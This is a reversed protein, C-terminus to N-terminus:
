LGLEQAVLERHFNADGFDVEGMKARTTYLGLDHDEIFGMGAFIEHARLVLRRTAESVWTKTVAVDISHPLGHSIKSATQWTLFRAGDLDTAMDAIYGQVIEFAGIPRDFQIREKTYDVTMEFVKQAMGLMEACRAIAGEQLIKKVLPWGEDLAGLMKGNPIRVRDFRAETQNDEAITTLPAFTIGEGKMYLEEGKADVLFLTIGDQPTAGASTRTVTLLYDAVNGYSVFWKTGSTQYYGREHPFAYMKIAAPDYRASPELLALPIILEGSAIRPLFEKKQEETGASLISLGSCVATQLFPSPLLVRGMEELLIVMDAFSAESGGYESPFLLGMWGLDAMKHWVDPSYGKEDRQMNRVLSSPCEEALFDRATKRLIEQEESLNLDIM